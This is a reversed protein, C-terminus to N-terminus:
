APTRRVSMLRRPPADARQSLMWTSARRLTETAAASTGADHLFGHAEGEVLDLDHQRGCSRYASALALTDDRLPDRGGALLFVPAGGAKGLAEVSYPSPVQPDHALNWMRELCAADLGDARSGFERLSPSDGLGFGGYFGCVGLIDKRLVELAQNEVALAIAAGASDGCLFVGDIGGPGADPRLVAALAVCGDVVPAPAPCEPALRYDVSFVTMGTCDSLRGSIDAHTLPSGVIWGGGHFYIIAHDSVGLRRPQQVLLRLRGGAHEITRWSDPGPAATGFCREYHRRLEGVEGNLWDFRATAPRTV